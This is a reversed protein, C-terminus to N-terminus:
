ETNSVTNPNTDLVLIGKNKGLIVRMDEVTGTPARRIKGKTLYITSSLLFKVL